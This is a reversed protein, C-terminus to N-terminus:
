MWWDKVLNICAIFWFNEFWIQRNVYFLQFDSPMPFFKLSAVIVLAYSGAAMSARQKIKCCSKYLGTELNHLYCLLAVTVCVWVCLLRNLLVHKRKEWNAKTKLVSLIIAWTLTVLLLMIIWLNVNQCRLKVNLEFLDGVQHLL